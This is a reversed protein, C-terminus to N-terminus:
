KCIKVECDLSIFIEFSSIMGIYIQIKIKQVKMLGIISGVIEVGIKVFLPSLLFWLIILGILVLIFFVPM